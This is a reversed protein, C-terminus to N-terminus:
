GARNEKSWRTRCPAGSITFTSPNSKSTLFSLTRTSCCQVGGGYHTVHFRNTFLKTALMSLGKRRHSPCGVQTRNAERYRKRKWRRPGPNWNHISLRKQVPSRNPVNNGFHYSKILRIMNEPLHKASNQTLRELTSRAGNWFLKSIRSEGVCYFWRTHMLRRGRSRVVFGRRPVPIESSRSLSWAAKPSCIQVRTKPHLLPAGSIELLGRYGPNGLAELNARRTRWSSAVFIKTIVTHGLTAGVQFHRRQERVEFAECIGTTSTSTQLNDEGLDRKQGDGVRQWEELHAKQFADGSPIWRCIWETMLIIPQSSPCLWAHVCQRQALDCEVSLENSVNEVRVHPNESSHQNWSAKGTRHSTWTHM